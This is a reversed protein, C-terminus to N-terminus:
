RLLLPCEKRTSLADKNVWLTVEGGHISATRFTPTGATLGIRVVWLNLVHTRVPM